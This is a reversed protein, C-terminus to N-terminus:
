KDTPWALSKTCFRLPCLLCRAKYQSHTEIAIFQKFHSHHSTNISGSPNWIGSRHNRWTRLRCSYTVRGQTQSTLKNTVAVLNSLSFYM